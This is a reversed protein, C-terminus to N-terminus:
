RGQGREAEGLASIGVKEELGALTGFLSGHSPLVGVLPVGLTEPISGLRLHSIYQVIELHYIRRRSPQILEVVNKQLIMVINQLHVEHGDCSKSDPSSMAVINVIREPACYNLRYPHDDHETRM